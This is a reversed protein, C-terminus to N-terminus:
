SFHKSTSLSTFSSRSLIKSSPELFAEVMAIEALPAWLILVCTSSFLTIFGGVVEIICWVSLWNCSEDLIFVKCWDFLLLKCCLARYFLSEWCFGGKIFISSFLEICVAPTLTTSREDKFSPWTSLTILM